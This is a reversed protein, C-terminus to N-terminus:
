NILRDVAQTFVSVSQNGGFLQLVQGSGTFNHIAITPTGQVGISRALDSNRRIEDVFSGQNVADRFAPSTIGASGGLEVLKTLSFVGSNPSRQADFLLAKYEEFRGQDKAALSAAGTTLSEFGLFAVPTIRFALGRVEVIERILDEEADRFFALCRPCQFDTFLEVVIQSNPDGITFSGDAPEQASQASVLGLVGFLFIVLFLLNRGFAHFIPM